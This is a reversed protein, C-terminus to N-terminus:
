NYNKEIWGPYRHKLMNTIWMGQATPHAGSGNDARTYSFLHPGWGHWTYRWGGDTQQNAIAREIWRSKVLDPRGAALLFGIRELYLDSVRFDFAAETAVRQEVRDTVAPLERTEGNFKRFIYLAFLQHTLNYMTFKDPSFMDAREADSLPLASPSIAHLIWRQYEELEPANFPDGKINPDVIKGWLGPDGNRYAAVIKSTLQQLPPDGSM